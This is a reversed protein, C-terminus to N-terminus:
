DSRIIQWLAYLFFICTPAFGGIVPPIREGEALLGMIQATMLYVVILVGAIVISLMVGGRANKGALPIGMMVGILCAFPFTFRSYIITKYKAILRTSEPRTQELRRFVEAIPIQDPPMISLRIDHHTEPVEVANLFYSDFHERAGPLFAGAPHPIYTCDSFSWGSDPFFEAGKAHLEWALSGDTRTALVIVSESQVNNHEDFERFYWARKRDSSRFILMSYMSDFNEVNRAKLGLEDAHRELDPVVGESLGFSLFTVIVAVCYISLGSRALSIGSARLATIESHKGFNAMTYMCSLLLAIPLIFRVNGPVKLFFFWIMEMLTITDSSALAGLHTFIDGIMFLFVFAIVLMIFPIMFERFIYLDIVPFIAFSKRRLNESQKM